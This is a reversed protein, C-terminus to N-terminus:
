RVRAITWRGIQARVEGVAAMSERESGVVWRAREQRVRAALREESEFPSASRAVRPDISRSLAIRDSGGSAAMIAFYGYDIPDILVRDGPAMNSQLWTGVRVEDARNVGYGPLLAHLRISVFVITVAIASAWGLARIRRDEIASVARDFLDIAVVWAVFLGSLLAREPHHTPAGGVADALVLAIGVALSGLLPAAWSRVASRSRSFFSLAAAAILAVAPADFALAAPYGSAVVRWTGSAVGIASRYASVRAHFHFADGHAHANWAIWL